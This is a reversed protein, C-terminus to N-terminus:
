SAVITLYWQTFTSLYVIKIKCCKKASGLLFSSVLVYVSFVLWGLWGGQESFWNERNGLCCDRDEISKMGEVLKFYQM